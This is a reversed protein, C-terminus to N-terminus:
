KVLDYEGLHKLKQKIMWFSEATRDSDGVSKICEECDDDIMRRRGEDRYTEGGDSGGFSMRLYGDRGRDENKNDRNRRRNM